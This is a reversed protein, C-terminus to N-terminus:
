VQRAIPPPYKPRTVLNSLFARAEPSHCYAMLLNLGPLCGLRSMPMQFLDGTTGLLAGRRSERLKERVDGTKQATKEHSALDAEVLLGELFAAVVTSPGERIVTSAVEVRISTAPGSESLAGHDCRYPQSHSHSNQRAGFIRWRIKAM